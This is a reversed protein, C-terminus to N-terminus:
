MHMCKGVCRCVHVCVSENHHYHEVASYNLQQEVPHLANILVIIAQAVVHVDTYQGLM